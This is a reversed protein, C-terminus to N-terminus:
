ATDDSPHRAARHVQWRKWRWCWSLRIGLQELYPLIFLGVDDLSQVYRREGGPVHTIHGRWTLPRAQKGTKELWIKIIFSHTQSEFPDMAVRRLGILGYAMSVKVRCHRQLTVSQQIKARETSTDRHTGLSTM